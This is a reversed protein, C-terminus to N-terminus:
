KKPEPLAALQMGLIASAMDQNSGVAKLGALLIRTRANSNATLSNVKRVDMNDENILRHSMDNLQKLVGWM